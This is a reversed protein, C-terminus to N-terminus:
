LVSLVVTLHFSPPFYLYILELQFRGIPAFVHYKFIDQGKKVLKFTSISTPVRSKLTKTQVCSYWLFHGKKRESSWHESVAQLWLNVVSRLDPQWASAVGMVFCNNIAVLPPKEQLQISNESLYWSKQM